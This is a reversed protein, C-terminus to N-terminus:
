TLEHQAAQDRTRSPTFTYLALATEGVQSADIPRQGAGLRGQPPGSLTWVPASVWPGEAGQTEQLRLHLSLMRQAFDLPRRRLRGVKIPQRKLALEMQDGLMQLVSREHLDRGEWVAHLAVPALEPRWFNAARLYILWHRVESAAGFQARATLGCLVAQSEEGDRCYGRLGYGIADSVEDLTRAAGGFEAILPCAALDDMELGEEALGEDAWVPAALAAATVKVQDAKSRVDSRLRMVRSAFEPSAARSRMRAISSALWAAIKRLQDSAPFEGGGADREIEAILKLQAEPAEGSFRHFDSFEEWSIRTMRRLNRLESAAAADDISLALRWADHQAELHQLISPQKGALEDTLRQVDLAKLRASLLEKSSPAIRWMKGPRGKGRPKVPEEVLHHRNRGVWSRATNLKSNASRALEAPTFRGLLLASGLLRVDEYAM